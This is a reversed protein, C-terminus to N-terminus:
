RDTCYFAQKTNHKLNELSRSHNPYAREILFAWLFFDAPTLDPSWSPWLCRWDIHDGFFDQLFPTTTHVTHATAGDQQYVSIGKLVKGASCNFSDSIPTVNPRLQRKLSCRIWMHKRSMACCVGIKSSQLPNEQLAHSSEASRKRRNQSNIKWNLHCDHTRRLFTKWCM